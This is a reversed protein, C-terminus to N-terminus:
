ACATSGSWPMGGAYSRSHYIDGAVIVDQSSPNTFSLTHSRGSGEVYTSYWGQTYYNIYVSSWATDWDEGKMFFDGDNARDLAHEHVGQERLQALVDDTLLESARGYDGTYRESSWPNRIWVL